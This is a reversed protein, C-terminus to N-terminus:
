GYGTRERYKVPSTNMIQLFARNFSRISGFGVEESIDAIKKDTDELLDCALNIRLMNIYSNFNMNLKENFLHSIHYKSIHLAASVDDLTINETFSQSCHKLIDKLTSHDTKIRPNLNFKPLLRGFLQNLLGVTITDSYKGDTKILTDLIYKIEEDDDVNLTNSLPINDYLFNKLGFFIDANPIILLYKGVVTDTYYHIQNPFCLFLDGKKMSTSKRDAFAVTGGELVYILELEKHLHPENTLFDNISVHFPSSKNEYFANRM